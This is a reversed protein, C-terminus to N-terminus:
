RSMFEFHSGGGVMQVTNYIMQEYILVNKEYRKAAPTLNPSM